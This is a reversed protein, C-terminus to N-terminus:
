EKRIKSFQKNMPLLYEKQEMVLCLFDQKGIIFESCVM